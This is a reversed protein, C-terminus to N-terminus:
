TRDCVSTLGSWTGSQLCVRTEFGVLGFGLNCSYTAVTDVEFDAITDPGYTIAGNPILALAPCEVLVTFSNHVCCIICCLSIVYVHM